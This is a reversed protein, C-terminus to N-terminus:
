GARRPGDLWRDLTEVLRDPDVPKSVFDDMGADLCARRDDLLTTATMAVIPRRSWGPLARIARTAALGDMKPMHLDMLVLDYPGRRAAEVAEVGDEACEVRLGVSRLLASAVERNIANDEALLVRCGARLALDREIEEPDARLAAPTSAEGAALRATFWFASGEGVVSEAGADGGMARAISRTIALGLGTGGHERTTSSDGQEFATFLRALKAPPIGPGTDRVEFRVTFGEEARAVVRAGFVVGGRRTFKM